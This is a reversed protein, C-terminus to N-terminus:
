FASTQHVWVFLRTKWQTGGGALDGSVAGLPLLLLHTVYQDTPKFLMPLSPCSRCRISDNGVRRILLQKETNGLFLM